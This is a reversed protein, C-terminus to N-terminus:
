QIGYWLLPTFATWVLCRSPPSATRLLPLPLLDSLRACPWLGNLLRPASPASSKDLCCQTLSTRCYLKAFSPLLPFSTPTRPAESRAVLNKPPCNQFTTAKRPAKPHPVFIQLPQRSKPVRKRFLLRAAQSDAVCRIVQCLGAIFPISSWTRVEFVIVEAAQQM